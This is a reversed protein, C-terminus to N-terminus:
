EGGNSPEWCHGGYCARFVVSKKYLHCLTLKSHTKTYWKTTDSIKNIDPDPLKDADVAPKWVDRTDEDGLARDEAWIAAHFRMNLNDAWWNTMYDDPDMLGRFIAWTRDDQAPSEKFWMKCFEQIKHHRQDDDLHVIQVPNRGSDGFLEPDLKRPEKGHLTITFIAWRDTIDHNKALALIDFRNFLPSVLGLGGQKWSRPVDEDVPFEPLLQTPFTIIEKRKVVANCCVLLQNLDSIDTTTPTEFLGDSPTSESDKGEKVAEPSSKSIKDTVVKFFDDLPSSLLNERGMSKLDWTILWTDPPTLPRNRTAIVFLPNPKKNTFGYKSAVEYSEKSAKYWSPPKTHHVRAEWVSNDEAPKDDSYTFVFEVTRDPLALSWIGERLHAPVAGLNFIQLDETMDEIPKQRSSFPALSTSSGYLPHPPETPTAFWTLDPYTM